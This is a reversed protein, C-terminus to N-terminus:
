ITRPFVNVFMQVWVDARVHVAVVFAEAIFATKVAVRALDVTGLSVLAWDQSAPTVFPRKVSFIVEVFVLFACM